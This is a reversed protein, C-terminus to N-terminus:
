AVLRCNGCSTVLGSILDYKSVTIENGCDCRCVWKEARDRNRQATAARMEPTNVWGKPQYERAKASIRMKAITEPSHKRGTQSRSMKQKTAESAHKGIQAKALNARLEPTFIRERNRQATADRLNVSQTKKGLAKTNGIQAASMRVRTEASKPVALLADRQAKRAVAYQWGATIIKKDSSQAHGMRHLGHLMKKRDWGFTFKVLCWHALFHERYTLRVINSKDNSGGLTRPVIHHRESYGDIVRDKARDMIQDYWGKYKNSLYNTAQSM